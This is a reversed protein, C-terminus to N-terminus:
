PREVPGRSPRLVLVLEPPTVTVQAATDIRVLRAEAMTRADQREATHEQWRREVRRDFLGPQQEGRSEDFLAAIARARDARVTSVRSHVELASALWETRAAEAEICAQAQRDADARRTEDDVSLTGSVHTAVTRGAADVVRSRFVRLTRGRLVARLRRRSPRTILRSAQRVRARRGTMSPSAFRDHRRSGAPTSGLARVLSLRGAEQQGEAELRTLRVPPMQMPQPEPAPPIDQRLVVLRASAEETWAPRGSLPDPAGVRAAAHRLRASLRALLRTEGTGEAVLHFVHVRHRQGIRDVRGIRQELRMPNWPLELNIVTRCHAQLNLGEGAADTALLVGASPFAELAARRQERTLGGHILAAGPAVQTRVHQLTDRYETFVIVPERIVQLLRRLRRLKCELGEAQRAADVVQQLLRREQESDQLAPAEWMPAADASDLEGTDDAWPLLLQAATTGGADQLLRLRREASAALAHPSSLARKHLLSLMLWVHPDLDRRERHVARTLAALAAHMRREPGTPRVRTTHVRRGANRGADQRSRRFVLLNDDLAGLDSLAAFAAEDGSHPTASLLLVFPARRALASVADHRESHGCCGHAEDVVVLDWGASVVSPLVEPRKVFDISSVVCPEITWPNVEVPRTSALRRLSPQDMLVLPLHLRTAAEEIWQDRLGAPCLVLVRSGFGRARMEAACLLAQLTKGLGVDDAILVRSGLGSVLALAPELQYPLLELHAPAAAHLAACGAHESLLAVCARRWARASVHRPRQAAAVPEIDDFPHLVQWTHPQGEPSHGALTVVRCSGHADVDRVVWMRQRVHVRDGIRPHLNEM